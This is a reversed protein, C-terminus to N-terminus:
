DEATNEEGISKHIVRVGEIKRQIPFTGLLAYDTPQTKASVRVKVGRWDRINQIFAAKSSATYGYEAQIAIEGSTKGRGLPEELAQIVGQSLQVENDEFLFVGKFFVHHLPSSGVNKVKIVIQPVIIAQAATVQKDAWYSDHWVVQVSKGLEETMKAKEADVAEEDSKYDGRIGEIEQKIPYIGLDAFGETTRAFLKVKIKKWEQKNKIFADKSSASYGYLSKIMIEESTEGPTLPKRLLPTVGDGIQDGTEEFIFVGVFKVDKVARSGVNEVKFTILPVIKVEYPTVEKNVWKSDHWVVRLTKRLEEASFSGKNIFYLQLILFIGFAAVLLFIWSKPQKIIESFKRREKVYEEFINNNEAM